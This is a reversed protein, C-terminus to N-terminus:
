HLPLEGPESLPPRLLKVNKPNFQFGRGHAPWLMVFPFELSHIYISAVKVVIIGGEPTWLPRKHTVWYNAAKLPDCKLAGPEAPPYKSM